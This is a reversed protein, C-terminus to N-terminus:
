VSLWPSSLIQSGYEIELFSNFYDPLPAKVTCNKQLSMSPFTLKWAHLMLRKVSREKKLVKNLTFDGYKDDGLIPNGILALHRRIQHMRGSGLQLEVLSFHESHVLRNYLTLSAKETGRVELPEDIYGKGPSIIGNCLALYKKEARKGCIIASYYRAAEKTKAVLIIGSTDKDLRHVLFPRQHWAEALLDDLSTTIRDGGQVALGAPKNLVVCDADEYLIDINKM